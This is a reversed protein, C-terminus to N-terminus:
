DKKSIENHKRIEESLAKFPECDNCFWLRSTFYSFPRLKFKKCKDCKHKVSLELQKGM